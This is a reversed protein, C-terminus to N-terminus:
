QRGQPDVAPAEARTSRGGFGEALTAQRFEEIASTFEQKKLWEALVSRPIAQTRCVSRQSEGHALAEAAALQRPTLPRPTKTM